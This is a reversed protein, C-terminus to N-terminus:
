QAKRTFYTKNKFSDQWTMRDNDLRTITSNKPVAGGSVEIVFNLALRNDDESTVWTFWGNGDPEIDEEYVDESEDWFAGTGDQHFHLFQETGDMQWVGPLLKLDVTDKEKKCSTFM